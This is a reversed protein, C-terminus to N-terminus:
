SELLLRIAREPLGSLAAAQEVTLPQYDRRWAELRADLLLTAAFLDAEEEWKGAPFLTAKELFVVNLDEHLLAHGLEHACVYGRREPALGSQLVIVRGGRRLFFGEVGDPLDAEVVPIGLKECYREPSLEGYRDLLARAAREARRTM